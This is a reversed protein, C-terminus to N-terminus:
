SGLGQSPKIGPFAGPATKNELVIQVGSIETDENFNRNIRKQQTKTEFFNLSKNIYETLYM